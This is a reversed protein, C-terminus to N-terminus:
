SALAEVKQNQDRKARKQAADLSHWTPDFAEGRKVVGYALQLLKRGVACCIERGKRKQARLREVYVQVAPNYRMASLACMYMAQRLRRNGGHGLMPHKRVSTGSSRETPALGAYQVLSASSPCSSFNLTLCVLWCASLLGIGPITQLLTVSAAWGESQDSVLAELEQELQKIQRNFTAVLEKKQALVAEVAYPHYSLAELQNSVLTRLEILSDRQSLRQYLEHYLPPPPSWQTPQHAYALRALIQADLPDTKPKLLLSRAFDRMQSPNIVSVGLGADHLYLALNLWYTGTAEMVVLVRAAAVGQKSLHQVFHAYSQPTQEFNQASLPEPRASGDPVILAASFSCAAIDVGCYLQYTPQTNSM